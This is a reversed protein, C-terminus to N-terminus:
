KDQLSAMIFFVYANILFSPTCARFNAGEAAGFDLFAEQWKVGAKAARVGNTHNAPRAASVFYFTEITHAEIFHAVSRVLVCSAARQAQTHACVAEELSRTRRARVCRAIFM